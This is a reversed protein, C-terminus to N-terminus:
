RESRLGSRLGGGRAEKGGLGGDGGIPSHNCIMMMLGGRDDEGECALRTRWESRGFRWEVEEQRENFIRRKKARVEIM